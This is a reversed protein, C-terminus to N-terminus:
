GVICKQNLTHMMIEIDSRYWRSAWIIHLFSTSLCCSIKFMDLIKAPRQTTSGNQLTAIDIDSQIWNLDQRGLHIDARKELKVDFYFHMPETCQAFRRTSSSFGKGEWFDAWMTVNNWRRAYKWFYWYIHHCKWKLDKGYLWDLCTETQDENTRIRWNKEREDKWEMMMDVDRAPSCASIKGRTLNREFCHYLRINWM